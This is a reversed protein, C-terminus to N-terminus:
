KKQKSVLDTRRSIVSSVKLKIKIMNIGFKLAKM